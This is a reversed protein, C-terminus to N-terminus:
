FSSNAQIYQTPTSQTIKKFATYFASKSKFGVSNGIGEINLHQYAPDLLRKQAEQIRYQNIFENFNQRLESNISQSIYNAPINLKDALSKLNCNPDLFFAEQMFYEKLQQVIATHDSKLGSTEYKDAIWAAEFFRSESSIFFGFALIGYCLFVGLYHDGLDTDFSFYILLLMAIFLITIWMLGKVFGFKSESSGKFLHIGLQQSNRYFFFTGLGLYFICSGLILCRILDANMYSKLLPPYDFPVFDIVGEHFAGIHANLKVEIPQLFYIWQLCFYAVPLIFYLSLNKLSFQKRTIVSTIVLYTLPPMALVLAETSDNLLLVYKMLGTYGLFMDFLALSIFLLLLAIFTNTQRNHKRKWFLLLSFLLGNAAGLFIMYSFINHQIPIQQITEEIITM